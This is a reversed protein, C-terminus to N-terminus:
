SANKDVDARSAYIDVLFRQYKGESFAQILRSLAARDTRRSSATSEILIRLM